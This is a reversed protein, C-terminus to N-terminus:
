KKDKPNVTYKKHGPSYNQLSDKKILWVNCVKVADLKGTRCLFQTQSQSKNIIMSAEASTVYVTEDMKNLIKLSRANTKVKARAAVRGDRRHIIVM